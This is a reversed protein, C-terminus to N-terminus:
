QTHHNTSAEETGSGTATSNLAPTAAHTIPSHPQYSIRTPEPFVAITPASGADHAFM